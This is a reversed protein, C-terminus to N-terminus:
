CAERPVSTYRYWQRASNNSLLSSNDMCIKGKPLLSTDASGIAMHPLTTCNSQVSKSGLVIYEDTRNWQLFVSLTWMLGVGMVCVRLLTYHIYCMYINYTGISINSSYMIIHGLMLVPFLFILLLPM